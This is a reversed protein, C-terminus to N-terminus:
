QVPDLFVPIEPVDIGAELLSDAAVEKLAQLTQDDYENKTSEVLKDGYVDIIVYATYFAEQQDITLEEGKIQSDAISKATTLVLPFVLEVLDKWLSM